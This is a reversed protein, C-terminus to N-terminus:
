SWIVLKLHGKSGVVAQRAAELAEVSDVVTVSWENALSCYPEPQCMSSGLEPTGRGRREFKCLHARAPLKGQFGELREMRLVLRLAIRSALASKRM